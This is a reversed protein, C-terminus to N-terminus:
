VGLVRYSPPRSGEIIHTPGLWDASPRVLFLNGFSFSDHTWVAKRRVVSVNARRQPDLKGARGASKLTAVGVIEYAKEQKTLSGQSICCVFKSYVNKSLNEEACTEM